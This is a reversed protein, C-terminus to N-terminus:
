KTSTDATDDLSPAPPVVPMQEPRLHYVQRAAAATSLAIHEGQCQPCRYAYKQKKTEPLRIAAVTMRCDKCFFVVGGRAAMLEPTLDPVRVEGFTGGDLLQDIKEVVVTDYYQQDNM